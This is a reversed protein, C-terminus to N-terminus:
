APWGPLKRVTLRGEQCRCLRLYKDNMHFPAAAKFADYVKRFEPGDQEFPFRFQDLVISCKDAFDLALWSYFRDPGEFSQGPLVQGNEDLLLFDAWAGIRCGYARLPLRGSAVLDFLDGLRGHAVKWEWSESIRVEEPWMFEGGSIRHDGLERDLAALRAGADRDPLPIRLM